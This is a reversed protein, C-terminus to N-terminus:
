YKSPASIAKAILKVQGAREPFAPRMGAGGYPPVPRSMVRM